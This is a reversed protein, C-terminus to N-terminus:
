FNSETREPAAAPEPIEIDYESPTAAPAKVKVKARVEQPAPGVSASQATAVNNGNGLIANVSTNNLNVTSNNLVVSYADHGAFTLPEIHVGPTQRVFTETFRQTEARSQESAPIKPVINVSSNPANPGPLQAQVPVGAAQAKENFGTVFQKTREKAAKLRAELEVKRADLQELKAQKDAPSLKTDKETVTREIALERLAAEIHPM